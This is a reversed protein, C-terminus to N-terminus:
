STVLSQQLTGSTRRKIQGLICFECSRLNLIDLNIKDEWGPFHKDLM